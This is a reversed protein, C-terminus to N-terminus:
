DGFWSEREKKVNYICTKQFVLPSFHCSKRYLGSVSTLKKTFNAKELANRQNKVMFIHPYSFPVIKPLDM